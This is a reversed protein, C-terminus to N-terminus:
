CKVVEDINTNLPLTPMLELANDRVVDHRQAKAM